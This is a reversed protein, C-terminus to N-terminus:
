SRIEVIGRRRGDRKQQWYDLFQELPESLLMDPRVWFISAGLEDHARAHDFLVLSDAPCLMVAFDNQMVLIVDVDDPEAVDSVYSGFVVLRELRGTAVPEGVAVMVVPTQSQLTATQAAQAAPTASAVILNVQKRVLDQARETLIDLGTTPSPYEITFDTNEVLGLAAMGDVFAKLYRPDPSARPSLWGITAISMSQPTQSM